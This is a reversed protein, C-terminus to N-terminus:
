PGFNEKGTHGPRNSNDLEVKSVCFLCDAANVTLVGVCDGPAPSFVRSTPLPNGGRVLFYEVVDVNANDGRKAQKGNLQMSTAFVRQSDVLTGKCKEIGEKSQASPIFAKKIDRFGSTCSGYQM